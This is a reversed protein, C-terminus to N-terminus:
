RPGSLVLQILLFLAGAAAFGIVVGVLIAFARRDDFQKM